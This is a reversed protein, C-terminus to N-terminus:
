ALDRTLGADIAQLTCSEKSQGPRAGADNLMIARLRVLGNRLLSRVTVPKIGLTAAIDDFEREQFYRLYVVTRQRETLQNMAQLLSERLAFRDHFHDQKASHLEWWEVDLPSTLVEREHRRWESRACTFVSSRLQAFLYASLPVGRSTDYAQVLDHLICYIEGLLDQRLEPTSGYRRILRRCYPAFRVMLESPMPLLDQEAREDLAKL